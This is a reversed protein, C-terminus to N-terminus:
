LDVGHNNGVLHHVGGRVGLLLRASVTWRLFLWREIGGSRARETCPSNPVATSFLRSALRQVREQSRFAVHIDSTEPRPRGMQRDMLGM